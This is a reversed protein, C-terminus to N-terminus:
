SKNSARAAWLFKVLINVLKTALETSGLGDLIATVLDNTLSEEDLGKKVLRAVEQSRFGLLPSGALNPIRGVAPLIFQNSNIAEALQAGTNLGLTLTVVWVHTDGVITKPPPFITFHTVTEIHNEQLWFSTQWDGYDVPSVKFAWASVIESM